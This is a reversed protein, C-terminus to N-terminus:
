AAGEEDVNVDDMESEDLEALDDEPVDRLCTAGHNQILKIALQHRDVDSAIAGILRQQYAIRAEHDEVTADLWKVRRGDGVAFTEEVLAARLDKGNPKGVFAAVENAQAIKRRELRVAETLIPLLLTAAERNVKLALLIQAAVEKDSIKNADYQGVHDRLSRM